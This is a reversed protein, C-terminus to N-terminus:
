LGAIGRFHIALSLIAAAYIGAIIDDMVVGTPTHVKRDFYRAVPLKIIDCIREIVFGLLVFWIDPAPISLVPVILYGPIEDIIYRHPDSEGWYRQAWPTLAYHLALTVAFGVLCWIRVGNAGLGAARGALHWILGACAGFTGPAGPLLGLGFGSTIAVLATDRNLKM